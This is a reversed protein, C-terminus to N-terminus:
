VNINNIQKKSGSHFQFVGVQMQTVPGTVPSRSLRVLTSNFRTGAYPTVITLQQNNQVLTSNFTTFSRRSTTSRADM